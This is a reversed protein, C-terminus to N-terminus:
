FVPINFTSKYYTSSKKNGIQTSFSAIKISPSLLNSTLDFIKFNDSDDLFYILNNKIDLTPDFPREKSLIKHNKQIYGSQEIKFIEILYYTALNHEFSIMFCVNNKIQFLIHFVLSSIRANNSKENLFNSSNNNLIELIKEISKQTKTFRKILKKVSTSDLCTGLINNIKKNKLMNKDETPKKKGLFKEMVKVSSQIFDKFQAENRLEDFSDIKMRSDFKFGINNETNKLIM